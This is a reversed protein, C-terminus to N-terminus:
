TTANTSGTNDVKSGMNEVCVEHKGGSETKKYSGTYEVGRTKWVRPDRVGTGRGRTKWRYDRGNFYFRAKDGSGGSRKIM